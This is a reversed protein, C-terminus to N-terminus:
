RSEGESYYEGLGGGAKQRDLAASVAARSTDNYYRVSWQKLPAITLVLLWGVWGRHPARGRGVGISACVTCIHWLQQTPAPMPHSNHPQNTHLLPADIAHPPTKTNHASLL